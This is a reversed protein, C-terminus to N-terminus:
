LRVWVMRCALCPCYFVFCCSSAVQRTHIPPEGALLGALACRSQPARLSIVPFVRLLLMSTGSTHWSQHEQEGPQLDPKAKSGAHGGGYCHCQEVWPIPPQLAHEQTPAVGWLMVGISCKIPGTHPHSSFITPDGTIAVTSVASCICGWTSSHWCATSSRGVMLPCWYGYLGPMPGALWSTGLSQLIPSTQCHGAGAVFFASTHARVLRQECAATLVTSAKAPLMSHIFAAASSSTLSSIPHLHPHAALSGRAPMPHWTCAHPIFNRRGAPAKNM